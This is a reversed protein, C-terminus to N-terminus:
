CFYQVTVSLVFWKWNLNVSLTSQLSADYALCYEPNTIAPHTPFLILMSTFGWLKHKNCRHVAAALQIWHQWISIPKGHYQIYPWKKLSTPIKFWVSFMEINVGWAPFGQWDRAMGYKTWIMMGRGNRPINEYLKPIKKHSEIRVAQINIIMYERTKLLTILM